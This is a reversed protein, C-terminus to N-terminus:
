ADVVPEDGWAILRWGTSPEHELTVVLTNDLTRTAFFDTDLGFTATTWCRIAAGHSVALAAPHGDGAIRLLADEYRQMFEVGTEGGPIRETPDDGWRTVAEVFPMWDDTMEWDGAQIERLGDVVVVDLGLSEALPTATQQARVLDSAYVAGLDEGALMTAVREVLDRAQQHGLDTLDAGPAATDLLRGVNSATQGHRTLYLRM